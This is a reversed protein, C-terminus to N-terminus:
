EFEEKKNKLSDKKIKSKLKVKIINFLYLLMPTSPALYIEAPRSFSNL